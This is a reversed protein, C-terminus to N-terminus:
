EQPQPQPKEAVNDPYEITLPINLDSIRLSVSLPYSEGEGAETWETVTCAAKWETLQGNKLTATMKLSSYQFAENYEAEFIGIWEPASAATFALDFTEENGSQRSTEYLIGSKMGDTLLPLLMHDIVAVPVGYGEWRFITGGDAMYIAGEGNIYRTYYVGLTEGTKLKKLEQRVLTDAPTRDMTLTGEYSAGKEEVLYSASLNSASNVESLASDLRELAITDVPFEVSDVDVEGGKKLVQRSATATLTFKDTGQWLEGAHSTSVQDIRGGADLRFTLVIPESFYVSSNEPLSFFEEGAYAAYDEATLTVAIDTLDGSRNLQVSVPELESSFLWEYDFPTMMQDSVPFPYDEVATFIDNVEDYVTVTPSKRVVFSAEDDGRTLYLNLMSTQSTGTHKYRLRATYTFPHATGDEGTLVASYDIRSILAPLERTTEWAEKLITMPSSKALYLGPIIGLAAVIAGALVLAIVTRIRSRRKKGAAKKMVKRRLAEIDPSEETRPAPRSFLSGSEHQPATLPQGCFTCVDCNDANYAHCQDCLKM